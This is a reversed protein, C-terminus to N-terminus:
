EDRGFILILRDSSELQFKNLDYDGLVDLIKGGAKSIMKDFDKMEEIVYDADNAHGGWDIQSGEVMLFFGDEDQSLYNIATRTARPLYDGRGEQMRPMADDALLVAVRGDAFDVIGDTLFVAGVGVRLM